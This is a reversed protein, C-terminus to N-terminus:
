KGKIEEKLREIDCIRGMVVLTDDVDIKHNIGRSSFIFENDLEKDQIGLLILNHKKIVTIESFFKGDLISGPEIRIEKITLNSDSHLLDYIIDVCMPKDIRRFINLGAIEYPNITSTVGALKLKKTDNDNTSLSIIQLKPNLSRASITVFLNKTFDNHMCFLTTVKGSNIGCDILEQDDYFEYKYIKDTYKDRMAFKYVRPEPEVVMFERKEKNLLFSIEAALKSYGYIIIM